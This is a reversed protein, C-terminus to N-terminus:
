IPPPSFRFKIRRGMEEGYLNQLLKRLARSDQEQAPFYHDGFDDGSHDKQLLATSSKQYNIKNELDGDSYDAQAKPSGYSVADDAVGPQVAYRTRYKPGSLYPDASYDQNYYQGQEYDKLGSRYEVDVRQDQVTSKTGSALETEVVQEDLTLLEFQEPPLVNNQRM